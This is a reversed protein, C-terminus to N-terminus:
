WQLVVVPLYDELVMGTCKKFFVYLLKRHVISDRKGSNQDATDDRNGAPLTGAGNEPM